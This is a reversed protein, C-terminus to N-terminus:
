KKIIPNKMILKPISKEKVLEGCSSPGISELLNLKNEMAELKSKVDNLREDKINRPTNNTLIFEEVADSIQKINAELIDVTIYNTLDINKNNIEQRMMDIKNNIESLSSDIYNKQEEQDKIIKDVVHKVDDVHKKYIQANKLNDKMQEAVPKVTGFLNNSSM